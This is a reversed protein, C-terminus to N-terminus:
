DDISNQESETVVAKFKRQQKNCEKRWAIIEDELKIIQGTYPMLKNADIPLTTMIKQLQRFIEKCEGLAADQFEQRKLFENYNSVEVENIKCAMQVDYAMRSSTSVLSKRFFDLAWEPYNEIIGTDLNNRQVIDKFEKADEESMKNIKTYFDVSRAKNKVGFDRLALQFISQDVMVADYHYDIESESRNRVAVSM